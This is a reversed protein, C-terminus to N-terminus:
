ERFALWDADDACLREPSQTFDWTSGVQRLALAAREPQQVYCAGSARAHVQQDLPKTRGLSIVTCRRLVLAAEGEEEPLNSLAWRALGHRLDVGSYPPPGTLTWDTVQWDLLPQGDRWLRAARHGLDAVEVEIDYQRTAIGRAAAACALGAMDFQHTCQGSAPTHLTVAHASGSLTMGVLSSLAASASPCLSYPHRPSQGSIGTVQGDAVLLEVRFHHYDDELAARVAAGAHSARSALVIRRRFLVTM